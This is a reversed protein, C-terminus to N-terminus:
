AGTSGFGGEGRETTDTFKDVIKFDAKVIPIFVLQAIKEGPEITIYNDSNRNWVSVMLEGRYDRDIIGTLNGLVKGEKAGKGSRPFIIAMLNEPVIMMNIKIGTKIMATKLPPIEITADLVAALDVGASHETGYTPICARQDIVELEIQRIM